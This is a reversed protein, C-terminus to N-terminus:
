KSEFYLGDRWEPDMVYKIEASTLDDDWDVVWSDINALTDLFSVCALNSVHCHQRDGDIFRIFYRQVKWKKLISMTIKMNYKEEIRTMTSKTNTSLLLLDNQSM